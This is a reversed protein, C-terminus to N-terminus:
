PGLDVFKPIAVAAMIGLIVIVIVLEVLTFGNSARM